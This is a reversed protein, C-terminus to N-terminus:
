RTKVGKSEANGVRKKLNGGHSMARKQAKQTSLKGAKSPKYFFIKATHAGQLARKVAKKQPL